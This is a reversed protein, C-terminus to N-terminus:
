KKFCSVPNFYCQRFRSQRKMEPSRIMREWGVPLDRNYEALRHALMELQLDSFGPSGLANGGDSEQEGLVQSSDGFHQPRASVLSSVILMVLVSRSILSVMNCVM